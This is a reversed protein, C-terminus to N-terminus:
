TTYVSSRNGAGIGARKYPEQRWIRNEAGARTGARTYLVQGWIRDEQGLEQTCSREGAGIGTETYYVSLLSRFLLKYLEQRWIWDHSM